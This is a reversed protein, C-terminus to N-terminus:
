RPAHPFGRGPTARFWGAGRSGPPLEVILPLPKETAATSRAARPKWRRRTRAPSPPKATLLFTKWAMLDPDLVWSQNSKHYCSTTEGEAILRRGAGALRESADRLEHQSEVQIGFHVEGESGEKGNAAIPFNVRPDELIWKAYDDRRAAPEAGFLDSYFRASRDLNM